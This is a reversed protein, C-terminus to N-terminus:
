AAHGARVARAPERPGAGAAYWDVITAPVDLNFVGGDGTLARVQPRGEADRGVVVARAATGTVRGHVPLTPTGAIEALDRWLSATTAGMVIDLEALQDAGAEGTPSTVTVQSPEGPPLAEGAMADVTIPGTASLIAIPHPETDVTMSSGVITARDAVPGVGAVFIIQSDSVMEAQLAFAHGGLDVAPPAAATIAIANHASDLRLEIPFEITSDGIVAAATAALADPDARRPIQALAIPHPTGDVILALSVDRGVARDRSRITLQPAEPHFEFSATADSLTASSEAPTHRLGPRLASTLLYAAVGAVLGLAVLKVLSRRNGAM